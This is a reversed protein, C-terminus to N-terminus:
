EEYLSYGLDEALSHLTYESLSHSYKDYPKPCTYDGDDDSNPPYHSDHGTCLSEDSCLKKCNKIALACAWCTKKSGRPAPNEPPCKNDLADTQTTCNGAATVSFVPGDAYSEDSLGVSIVGVALLLMVAVKLVYTHNM